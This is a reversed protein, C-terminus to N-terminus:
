GEFGELLMGRADDIQPGRLLPTSFNAATANCEENMAPWTEEPVSPSSLELLCCSPLPRSFPSSHFSRLLGASGLMTSTCSTSYALDVLICTM